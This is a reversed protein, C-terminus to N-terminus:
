FSWAAMLTADHVDGVGLSLEVFFAQGDAKPWEMGGTAKAGIEFESGDQTAGAGGDYDVWGLALGGGAYPTFSTNTSFRYYVPVTGYLTTFDDGAGVQVDPQFRLDRAFEGLNFHAGGVVQDIDSAVGARVGWGHWGISTGSSSYPQYATTQNSRKLQQPGDSSSGAWVLSSSAVLAVVIVCRKSDM